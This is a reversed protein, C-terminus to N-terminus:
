PIERGKQAEWKTPSLQLEPHSVLLHAVVAQFAETHATVREAAVVPVVV